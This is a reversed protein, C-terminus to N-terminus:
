KTSEKAFGIIVQVVEEISVNTSDITIADDAKILPAIERTSDLQDRQAIDKEIQNLDSPIGKKMQEDFRRKAREKVSATLFIKVTADPLVYTGIDRGDLVASRNKALQRQREVMEVRVERHSAVLSVNATVEANRIRETVDEENLLVLEDKEHDFRIELQDLLNKLEKGDKLDVRARMAAYTLARYMAGTDIYLFSLQKAVLRAVTSKGAGAPGDIAITLNNKM